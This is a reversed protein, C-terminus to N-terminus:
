RQKRKKSAELTIGMVTAIEQLTFNMYYYSIFRLDSNSLKPHKQKLRKIFNPNIEEFHAVFDEWEKETHLEDKLSRVLHQIKRNSNLPEFHKLDDVMNKILRNRETLYLAKTALKRNK